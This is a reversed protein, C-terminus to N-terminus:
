RTTAATATHRSSSSTSRTSSASSASCTRAAAASPTATRRSACRPRASTSSFTKGTSGSGPAAFLEAASYSRYSECRLRVNPGVQLTAEVLFARGLHVCLAAMEPDSRQFTRLVYAETTPDWVVATVARLLNSVTGYTHGPLLTEGVAPVSTGHGDIALVGGLTLDGPAPCNTVGLGAGQLATHFAEMSIGTQATVTPPTMGSDISVATLHATTDLMLTPSDCSDGPDLSIPSWTHAKGRPRLRWGNAHAWNALTM